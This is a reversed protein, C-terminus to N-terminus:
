GELSAVLADIARAGVRKIVPRALPQVFGVWNDFNLTTTYDIVTNEGDEIFRVEDVAEVNPGRGKLVLRYHPEFEAVEYTMPLKAGGFRVEVEYTTGIGPPGDSVQKATMISPHWDASNDFAATYAFVEPQPKLVRRIEHLRIM